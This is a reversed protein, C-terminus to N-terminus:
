SSHLPARAAIERELREIMEGSDRKLVRKLLFEPVDFTPQATLEYTVLTRGDQASVRWSGEYRAFSRRCRDTFNLTGAGEEIDLVLHVRKSFMMLRSVAEQEVVARGSARELVVSSSINPMFRPIAEYDTLVAFVTEPSQSVEFAARVSYVGRDERVSVDAGPEEAAVLLVPAGLAAVTATFSLLLFRRIDLCGGTTRHLLTKV